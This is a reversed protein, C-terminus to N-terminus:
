PLIATTDRSFIFYAQGLTRGVEDAEPRSPYPGLVVRYRDDGPTPTLVQADLGAQRLNNALDAAWAQNYTASVQVFYLEGTETPTAAGQEALMQLMPRRADWRVVLWRDDDADAVRAIERGTDPDVTVVDPGSRILATGGPTITPLDADWSGATVRITDAPQAVDIIWVSDSAAPRLLLYRGYPDFRIGTVMGPLARRFLERFQFRDLVVLEAGETAAVVRHGPPSVAVAAARSRLRAFTRGAPNGPEIGHLGSDASVVILDGWTSSATVGDPLLDTAGVQGDPALRKVTRGSTSPEVVVLRGGTTGWASTPLAALTDPWESVRRDRVAGITSDARISYASGTPGFAASVVGSDVTRQRGTALELAVLQSDPTRIYIQDEDAVFGIVETAVLDPNEFRWNFEEMSPLNYVRVGRGRQSPFRFAVATGFSATRNDRVFAEKVPHPPPESRCALAGALLVLKLLRRM